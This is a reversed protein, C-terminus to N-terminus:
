WQEPMMRAMIDQLHQLKEDKEAGEADDDDPELLIDWIRAVKNHKIPVPVPQNLNFVNPMIVTHEDSKTARPVFSYSKKTHVHQPDSWARTKSNFILVISLIRYIM